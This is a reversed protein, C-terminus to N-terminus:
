MMGHKSENNLLYEPKIKTIRLYLVDILLLNQLNM